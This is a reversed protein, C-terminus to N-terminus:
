EVTCFSWNSGTPATESMTVAGSGTAPSSGLTEIRMEVKSKMFKGNVYSTIFGSLSSVPTQACIVIPQGVAYGGSGLAVAIRVQSNTLGIRSKTLCIIKDADADGTGSSPTLACTSVGTGADTGFAGVAAQRAGDRVGQRLSLSSNYISGFDVIGFILLLLLPAVM